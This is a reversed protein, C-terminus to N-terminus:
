LYMYTLTILVVSPKIDADLHHSLEDTQVWDMISM